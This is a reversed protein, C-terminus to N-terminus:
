RVGTRLATLIDATARHSERNQTKRMVSRTEEPRTYRSVAAGPLVLASEAAEGLSIVEYALEGIERKLLRMYYQDGHYHKLEVVRRVELVRYDQGIATAHGVWHGDILRRLLRKIMTIRGTSANRRTMGYTLCTVFAKALDLADDVFPNGFKSFAAPRTVYLVREKDNAVESVDFIGAAHLKAFLQDGLELKARQFTAAGQQILLEDLTKFRRIDDSTLSTFVAEMKQTNDRRFINGNFYLKKEKALSEADVFGIEECQQVFERTEAVPLRFEDSFREVVMAHEVPVKSVLEAFELSAREKTSANMTDYLHATHELVTYASVGLVEVNGKNVNIVGLGSLSRLLEPLETKMVGAAKRIAEVKESSLVLQEDASLGSLLVGAKGAMLVTEYELPNSVLSLKNTHHVIWAGKTRTDM